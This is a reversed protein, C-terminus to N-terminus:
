EDNIEEQGSDPIAFTLSERWGLVYIFPDKIIELLEWGQSLQENVLDKANYVSGSIENVQAIDRFGKKSILSQLDMEKDSM